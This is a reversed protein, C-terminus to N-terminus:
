AGVRQNAGDISESLTLNDAIGLKMSEKYSRQTQMLCILMDDDSLAPRMAEIAPESVSERM